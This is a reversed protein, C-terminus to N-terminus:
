FGCAQFGSLNCFLNCFLFCGLSFTGSKLTKSTLFRLIFKFSKGPDSLTQILCNYIQFAKVAGDQLSADLYDLGHQRIYM